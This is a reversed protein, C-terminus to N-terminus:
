VGAEARAAGIRQIEIAPVRALARARAEDLTLVSTQAVPAPAVTSTGASSTEPAPTQGFATGTALSLGIALLVTAPGRWGDRAVRQLRPDIADALADWTDADTAQLALREAATLPLGCTAALELVASAPAERFRRRSAEDTLLRGICREVAAQSMSVEM